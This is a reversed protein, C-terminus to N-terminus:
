KLSDKKNKNIIEEMTEEKINALVQLQVLQSEVHMILDQRVQINRIALEASVGNVPINTWLNVVQGIPAEPDYEPLFVKRLLKLLIENGKFTQKILELEGDTFRMNKGTDM